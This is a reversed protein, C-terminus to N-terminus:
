AAPQSQASKGSRRSTVDGQIFETKAEAYDVSDTIGNALINRKCQEYAARLGPEARLRDRFARLVSAEMGDAAIVHAHVRFRRGNVDVAGVRMPRDEPFADRTSQRQFGLADLARKAQPLHGPAYLVMLDVIGKGACGPVATSGIHEVVLGAEVSTIAEAILQAVAPADADYEDCTAPADTYPEIQISM